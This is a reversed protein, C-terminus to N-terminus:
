TGPRAKNGAEEVFPALWRMVWVASHPTLHTGDVSRLGLGDVKEPCLKRRVRPHFIEAGGGPMADLGADKLQILVQEWTLDCIQALRQRKGASQPEHGVKASIAPPM